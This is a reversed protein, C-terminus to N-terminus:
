ADDDHDIQRGLRDRLHEADDADLHDISVASQRTGATHVIVTALQRRRQLPGHKLDLHQVRTAPVRTERQWLRGRRVALGHADIRWHSHLYRRGGYWAGFSLGIVAGMVGCALAVGASGAIGGLVFGAVTIPIACMLATELRFLPLARIPLSQWGGRDADPADLADIPPPVPADSMPPPLDPVSPPAAPAVPPLAPPLSGRVDDDERHTPTM